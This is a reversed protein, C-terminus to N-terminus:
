FKKNRKYKWGSNFVQGFVSRKMKIWLDQDLGTLNTQVISSTVTPKQINRLMANQDLLIFRTLNTKVHLDLTTMQTIILGIMLLISAIIFDEM